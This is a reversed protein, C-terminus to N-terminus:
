GCRRVGDFQGIHFWAVMHHYKAGTRDALRGRNKGPPSARRTDSDDTVAILGTELRQANQTELIKDIKRILGALLLKRPKSAGTKIDRDFGGARRGHDIDAEAHEFSEANKDEGAHRLLLRAQIDHQQYPSAVVDDATGARRIGSPFRGYARQHFGRVRETWYNRMPKGQLVPEFAKVERM